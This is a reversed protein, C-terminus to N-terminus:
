RMVVMNSFFQTARRPNILPICYQVVWGSKETTQFLDVLGADFRKRMDAIVSAYKAPWGTGRPKVAVVYQEYGPRGLTRIDAPEPTQARPFSIGAENRTRERLATYDIGLQRAVKSVNDGTKRMLEDILQQQLSNGTM